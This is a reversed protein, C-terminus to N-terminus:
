RYESALPMVALKERQARVTREPCRIALMRGTHDDWFAERRDHPLSCSTGADLIWGIAEAELMRQSM